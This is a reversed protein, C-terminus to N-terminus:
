PLLQASAAFVTPAAATPTWTWKVYDGRVNCDFPMATGSATVTYSDTQYFIPATSGITKAAQYLKITGAADAAVFFRVVGFGQSPVPGCMETAGAGPPTVTNSFRFAKAAGAQTTGAM